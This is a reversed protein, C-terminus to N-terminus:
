LVRPAHRMGDVHSPLAHTRQRPSRRHHQLARQQGPPPPTASGAAASAATTNCLGSLGSSGLRRYVSYAPSALQPSNRPLTNRKGHSLHHHQLVQQGPTPAAKFHISRHTNELAISTKALPGCDLMARPAIDPLFCCIARRLTQHIIVVM